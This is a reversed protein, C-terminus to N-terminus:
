PIVAVQATAGVAAVVLGAALLWRRGSRPWAATLLVLAVGVLWVLHWWALAQSVWQRQWGGNGHPPGALLWDDPFAMPDASAPGVTIHIPQVQLVSFPTVSPAGFLWYTMVVFWFVFLLPVVAVLRSVRRGVAAGLAVAVLALAPVQALEPFTHLATTTRGPEMGLWMGGLERERWAALASYGCALVVYPVAAVLRAATRQIEGAPAAPAVDSRARHAAVAAALAIGFLMPVASPQVQEYSSGPWEGVTPEVTSLAWVSALFCLWPVPNRLLPRAEARVLARFLGSGSSARPTVATPALASSM